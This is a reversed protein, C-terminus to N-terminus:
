QIKGKRTRKKELNKQNEMMMLLMVKVNGTVEALKEKIDTFIETCEPLVGRDEIAKLRTNVKGRWGGWLFVWVLINMIIVVAGGIILEPMM